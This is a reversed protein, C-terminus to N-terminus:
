FTVQLMLRGGVVTQSSLTSAAADPPDGANAPAKPKLLGAQEPMALLSYTGVKAELVTPTNLAM